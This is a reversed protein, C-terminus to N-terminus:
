ADTHSPTVSLATTDQVYEIEFDFTFNNGNEGAVSNLTTIAPDWMITFDFTCTDGAAIQPHSTTIQDLGNIVIAHGNGGNSGSPTATISNIRVPITGDNIVQAQIHAGAGPYALDGVTVTLKDNAHGDTDNGVSVTPTCGVSDALAKCEAQVFHVDFTGNVKATGSITLTDSFAAYGVALALLLVLLLVILIKKSKRKTKAM